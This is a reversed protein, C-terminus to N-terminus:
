LIREEATMMLVQEKGERLVKVPIAVGLSVKELVDEIGTKEDILTDNVAIIIDKERIGAHEAASGPVVAPRDAVGERLVFAGREVPLRFRKKLMANLLIYRVGLFPRRIRGYTKLEELDRLVKNIPIAFGISQAGFVVAANIGIAEGHLNVLPGGSNGPNIAADTQILGRLRESHGETDVAATIFRSLGSVIGASVTNQFEGLATGVALVSQGLRIADSNGLAIIPLGDAEIKLIAVDNLPDMALVRAPYSDEAATMVMYEAKPDRVVHKNTVILGAADVIFGSGGGIRIKGDATHPLEDEPPPPDMHDGHPMMLEYPREHVIEEYAKGVVISVVAPMVKRVTAIIEEEYNTGIM